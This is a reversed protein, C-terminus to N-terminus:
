LKLTIVQFENSSFIRIMSVTETLERFVINFGQGPNIPPLQQEGLLEDNEGYIRVMYNYLTYSPLGNHNNGTVHFNGNILSGDLERVPSFREQVVWYSPKRKGELDLIGHIRQKYKGLGAEGMHTRYDNLSFYILGGIFENKDYAATHHLFHAIRAPDGGKFVPECLGYESIILPKGPIQRNFDI